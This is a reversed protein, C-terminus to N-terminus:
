RRYYEHFHVAAEEASMKAQTYAYDAAQLLVKDECFPGEEISGLKKCFAKIYRTKETIDKPAHLRNM